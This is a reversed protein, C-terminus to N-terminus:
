SALGKKYIYDLTKENPGNLRKTNYEEYCEKLHPEEGEIISVPIIANTIKKKIKM